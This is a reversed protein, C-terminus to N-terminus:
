DYVGCERMAKEVVLFFMMLIVIMAAASTAETEAAGKLLATSEDSIGSNPKEAPTLGVPVPSQSPATLPALPCGM